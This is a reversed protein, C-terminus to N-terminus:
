GRRDRSSLEIARLITKTMRTIQFAIVIVCIAVFIMQATVSTFLIKTQGASGNTHAAATAMLWAVGFAIVFFLLVVAAIVRLRFRDIADLSNRLITDPEQSM